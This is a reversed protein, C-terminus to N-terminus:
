FYFVLFHWDLYQVRLLLGIKVVELHHLQPRVFISFTCANATKAKM